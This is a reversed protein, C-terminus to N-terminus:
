AFAVIGEEALQEFLAAGEVLDTLTAALIEQISAKDNVLAVLARTRVDLGLTDLDDPAVLLLPVANLAAMTGLRSPLVSSEVICDDDVALPEHRLQLSGSAPEPPMKHGSALAVIGREVLNRLHRLALLRPLGSIDLIDEVSTAGDLRSFLFVSVNDLSFRKLEEPSVAAALIASESGLAALCERELAQRCERALATGEPHLPTLDLLRILLFLAQEHHGDQHLRRAQDITAERDTTGAARQKVESDRAFDEPDFNPVLTPRDNDVAEEPAPPTTRQPPSGGM